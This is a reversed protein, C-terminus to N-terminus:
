AVLKFKSILMKVKTGDSGTIFLEAKMKQVFSRILQYGMSSLQEYNWGLPLGKGNDNVELLLKDNEQKLKIEVVGGFTNEEFAYKLANSILENLILGLPVVTDVDLQLQDIDTKLSVANPAIQYSSFLSQTLKEIYEKVDVGMLNDDRYLNQHILAMSKVRNKGETIAALATADTINRSQLNLLSSVVQLNNKVRHHIEKLLTEKEALSQSIIANKQALQRSTKQKNFYLFLIFGAVVSILGLGLTYLLRTRKEEKLRLANIANEKNLLDVQQLAEKNKTQTLQLTQQQQQLKIANLISETNLLEIKQAKQKNQAEKLLITQKQQQLSLDKVLNEKNLLEIEQEKQETKYKTKLENLSELNKASVLSDSYIKLNEYHALAKSYDGRAKECQYLLNTIAALSQYKTNKFRLTLCHELIPIAKDYQKLGVYAQGLGYQIANNLDEMRKVTSNQELDLFLPLAEEFRSQYNLGIALNVKSTLMLGINKASEARKYVQKFIQTASDYQKDLNHISAINMLVNLADPSKQEEYIALAKYYYELATELNNRTRYVLGIGNFTAAMGKKNGLKTKIALSQHYFILSSDLINQVYFQYAFDHLLVGQLANDKLLKNEDIAKRFFYYGSDYKRLNSYSLAMHHYANTKLLANNTQEGRAKIISAVKLIEVSNNRYWLNSLQILADITASDTTASLVKQKWQEADQACVVSFSLVTLMWLLLFYQKM